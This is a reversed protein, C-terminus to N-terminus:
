GTVDSEPEVVYNVFVVRGRAFEARECVIPLTRTSVRVPETFVTFETTWLFARRPRAM